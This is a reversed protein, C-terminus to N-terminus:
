GVRYWTKLVADFRLRFFGNAALTTPGGVISAGNADLTLTTIAQTSNVLIETKDLVNALLPLKLTATALTGAPTLVLWVSNQTDTLLTTSAALPAAYQTIKNDATALQQTAMFSLLNTLSIKRADGNAQSYLALLDSGSVQDAANLQNITPM